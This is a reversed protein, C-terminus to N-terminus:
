TGPLIRLVQAGSVGLGGKDEEEEEEERDAGEGRGRKSENQCYISINCSLFFNPYIKNPIILILIM